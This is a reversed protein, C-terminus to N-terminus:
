VLAIDDAADSTYLLCGNNQTLHFYSIIVSPDDKPKVKVYNGLGDQSPNTTFGSSVPSKDPKGKQVDVVEGDTMSFVPTGIPTVFDYGPHGEYDGIGFSMKNLFTDKNIPLAM